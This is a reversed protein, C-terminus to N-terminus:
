SGGMKEATMFTVDMYLVHFFINTFNRFIWVPNQQTIDCNGPLSKLKVFSSFMAIIAQMINEIEDTTKREVSQQVVKMWKDENCEYYRRDVRHRPTFTLFTDCIDISQSYELNTLFFTAARLKVCVYDLNLSKHILKKSALLLETKYSEKYKAYFLFGLMSRVLHVAYQITVGKVKKLNQLINVYNLLSETANHPIYSYWLFFPVVVFFKFSDLYSRFCAKITSKLAYRKLLVKYYFTNEFVHDFADLMFVHTTDYKSLVDIIETSMNVTMKSNFLNRGEIIYHPIHRVQIMEILKTLCINLCNFYNSYVWQCSCLEVCWFMVHKIHFSSVVERQSTNLNERLIIKILAYCLIQVDTLDLLINQEGPFSIRWQIDNNTSDHHGVLAVDYGQSKISELMSNSPWNNPRRRTIFSIASNPWM